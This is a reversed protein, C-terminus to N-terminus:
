EPYSDEPPGHIGPGLNCKDLYCVACPDSHYGSLACTVGCAKEHCFSLTAYANACNDSLGISKMKAKVCLGSGPLLGCTACKIKLATSGVKTIKEGDAPAECGDAVYPTMGKGTFTMSKVKDTVDVCPENKPASVIYAYKDPCSGAQYDPVNHIQPCKALPLNTSFENCTKGENSITHITLNTGDGKWSLDTQQVGAPGNGDTSNTVVLVIGVVLLSGVVSAIVASSNFGM